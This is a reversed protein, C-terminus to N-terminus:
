RCRIFFSFPIIIGLVPMPGLPIVGADSLVALPSRAIMQLM